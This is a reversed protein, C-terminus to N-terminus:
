IEVHSWTKGNRIGWICAATVGFQEGIERDNLKTDRILEKVEIIRKNTFKTNHHEAGKKYAKPSYCSLARYIQEQRRLSMHPWLLAMLEAARKGRIDVRYMLKRGNKPQYKNYTAGFLSAVRHITDEDQMAVSIRPSRPRQPTPQCFGGDGELLGVLWWFDKGAFYGEPYYDFHKIISM